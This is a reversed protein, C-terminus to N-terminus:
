YYKYTRRANHRRSVLEILLSKGEKYIEEAKRYDYNSNYVWKYTVYDVILDETAQLISPVLNTDFDEHFEMRYIIDGSDYTDSGEFMYPYEQDRAYQSFFDAFIRSSISKIEDHVWKEADQIGLIAFDNNRDAKINRGILLSNTNIREQITAIDLNLQVM